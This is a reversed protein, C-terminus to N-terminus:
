WYLKHRCVLCKVEELFLAHAPVSVGAASREKKQIINQIEHLDIKGQGVDLLTGVIARVMNRLFRDAQITFVLYHSEEKWGAYMVNCDNNRTQTHSKSFSTFDQKGILYKCAKNM